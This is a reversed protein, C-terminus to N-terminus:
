YRVALLPIQLATAFQNHIYPEYYGQKIKFRFMRGIVGSVISLVSAATNSSDIGISRSVETVFLRLQCPLTSLPFPQWQKPPESDEDVETHTNTGLTSNKDLKGASESEAPETREQLVAPCVENKVILNEDLTIFRLGAKDSRSKDIEYSFDAQMTAILTKLDPTSEVEYTAIAFLGAGSVSQVVAAVYPVAMIEARASELKDAPITDFDLCLIGNPKCAATKREAQPESSFVVAPLGKKLEDRKGKEPEYRVGEILEKSRGGTRFAEL